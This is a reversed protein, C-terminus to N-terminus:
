VRKFTGDPMAQYTGNGNQYFKGVTYTNGTSTGKFTGTATSTNGSSSGTWTVPQGVKLGWEGTNTDYVREGTKLGATSQGPTGGYGSGNAAYVAGDRYTGGVALPQGFQGRPAPRAASALFGSLMQMPNIGFLGPKAGTAAAPVTGPRTAPTPPPAALRSSTTWTFVPPPAVTRTETITKPPPAGVPAPKPPVYNPDSIARMADAGIVAGTPTIQQNAALQGMYVQYAPNPVQVQTTRPAAFGPQPTAGGLFSYKQMDRALQAASASLRDAGIGASSLQAGAPKDGQLVSLTEAPNYASPYAPSPLGRGYMGAMAADALPRALNPTVDRPMAVTGAQPPVYVSGDPRVVETTTQPRAQAALTAWPAPPSYPKPAAPASFASLLNGGLKQWDFNKVAEVATKGADAMVQKKIGGAITGEGATTFGPLVREIVKDTSTLVAYGDPGPEAVFAKDGIKYYEGITVTKGTKTQMQQQPLPAPAAAPAPIDPRPRPLPVDPAPSAQAALAAWPALPTYAPAAPKAPSYSNLYAAAEPTGREGLAAMATKNTLPTGTSIAADIAAVAPSAAPNQRAAQLAVSMKAPVPPKTQVTMPTIRRIGLVKGDAPFQRINVQFGNEGQGDVRQNGGLVSYTGNGNIATIIGVHGRWGGGRDFVVIDGVQAKQVPTGYDLFSRATLAGTQELGASGLVSNLFAACWPTAAPNIPDVGANKFFQTLAKAQESNREDYGVWQQAIDLPSQAM